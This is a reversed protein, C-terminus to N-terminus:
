FLGLEGMPGSNILTQIETRAKENYASTPTKEPLGVKKRLTKPDSFVAHGTEYLNM